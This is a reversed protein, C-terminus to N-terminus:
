LEILDDEDYNKNSKKGILSDWKMPSIGTGPRKVILNNENYIEGKIIKSKAVISKRAVPINKKESLTAKKFGDGLSNEINRIAVIMNKLENPELSSSQDPGPLNRDLTIHKEIIKAGLAVAAIPVEIGITHDSYGVDLKFENKLQQMAYLNVDIFPTPYETNCHMITIKDKKTGSFTLINLADRIESINAMGTSIIIEKNLSGIKRLYPLNTIEGSPIKFCQLGIEVLYDISVHDFPTSLFDINLNEAYSKLKKFDELPLSIKEHMELNTEGSKLSKSQYNAAFANKSIHLKPISTQFKVIDAGSNKAVEILKKAIEIKGNHNAGAEAIIKVKKNM